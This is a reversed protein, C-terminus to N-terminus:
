SHRRRLQFSTAALGAGLLIVSVAIPGSTGSGTNALHPGAVTTAPEVAVPAVAPVTTSTAATVTITGHMIAYGHIACFYVYTGPEAFTFKATGDAPIALHAATFKADTGTGGSAGDCNAPTCRSINHAAGSKDVWTVTGGVSVTTNAPVFCFSACNASVTVVTTRV